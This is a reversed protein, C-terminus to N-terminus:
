RLIVRQMFQRIPFEIMSQVATPLELPRMIMKITTEPKLNVRVTRSMRSALEKVQAPDAALEPKHVKVVHRIACDADENKLELTRRSLTGLVRSRGINEQNRYRRFYKYFHKYHNVEDNAILGALHKLVPEDTARALARYYTSTGTEVVCRAALELARTPELLEVKCYQSYEDLFGRYAREWEFEPWVYEVYARLAAGHQLEEKEWQERLWGEVEDDGRYYEVLNHTYLDSGSEIFSACAVLYFLEEDGRVRAVDIRALDIDEVTWHKKEERSPTM